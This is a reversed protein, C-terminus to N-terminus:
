CNMKSKKGNSGKQTYAPNKFKAKFTKNKKSFFDLPENTKLFEEYTPVISENRFFHLASGFDYKEFCELGNNFAEEFSKNFMKDEKRSADVQWLTNKLNLVYRKLIFEFLIQIHEEGKDVKHALELIRYYEDKITSICAKESLKDIVEFYHLDLLSTNIVSKVINKLQKKNVQELISSSFEVFKNLENQANQSEQPIPLYMTTQSSPSKVNTEEVPVKNMSNGIQQSNCASFALMICLTLGQIGNYKTKKTASNCNLYVM